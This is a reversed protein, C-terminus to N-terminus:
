LNLNKLLNKILINRNLFSKDSKDIFINKTFFYSLIDNAYQFENKGIKNIDKSILFFEPMKFLKKEYGIAGIESVAKATTPSIYKLKSIDKEGTVTCKSLDFGFGLNNLLSKEYLFYLRLIENHSLNINCLHDIINLVDKYIANSNEDNIIIGNLINCICVLIELRTINDMILHYRQNLINAKINGLQDSLRAFWEVLFVNGVQYFSKIKKTQGAKILGTVIGFNKTLFSAIIDIDGFKKVCILIGSSVKKM